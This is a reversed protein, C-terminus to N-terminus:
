LIHIIWYSWPLAQCFRGSNFRNKSGNSFALKWKTNSLELGLYLTTPVQVKRREEASQDKKM